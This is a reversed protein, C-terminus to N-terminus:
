GKVGNVKRKNDLYEALMKTTLPRSNLFDKIVQIAGEHSLDYTERIEKFEEDTDGAADLSCVREVKSLVIPKTPADDGTVDCVTIYKRM